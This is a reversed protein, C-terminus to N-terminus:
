LRTATRQSYFLFARRVQRDALLGHGHLWVGRVLASGLQLIRGWPDQEGVLVELRRRLLALHAAFM